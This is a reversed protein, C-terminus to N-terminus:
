SRASSLRKTKHIWFSFLNECTVPSQTDLYDEKGSDDLVSFLASQKPIIQWVGWDHGSAM